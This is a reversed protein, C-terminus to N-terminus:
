NQVKVREETSIRKGCSPCERRRSVVGRARRRTKMTKLKCGCDPCTFGALPKHKPM